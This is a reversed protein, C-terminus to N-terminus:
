IVKAITENILDVYHKDCLLSNNLKWYGNGRNVKSFDLVIDVLSHDTRYGADINCSIINSSLESSILFFDLRAQKNADHQRWTYKKKDPNQIRWIDILDMDNKLNLVKERAKPNNLRVYNFCDMSEEFVLNWDGCIISHPNNFENLMYQVDEYFSPSDTNPGYINFLTIRCDNIQIDLAIINGNDDCKTNFVKYEFNNNLLIAM